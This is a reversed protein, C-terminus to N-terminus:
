AEVIKQLVDVMRNMDDISVFEHVGHCNEGGTSLNPCPLGMFSLRAGDTGGRIAVAKPEVGQSRFANEIRELIEPHPLVMEKM